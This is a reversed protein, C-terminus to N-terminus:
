LSGGRRRRPGLDGDSTAGRLDRLKANVDALPMAYRTRSAARVEDPDSTPPPPALTSLSFWPQVAGRAMIQAYAEFAALSRFDEATIVDDAAAFSRADEAGLQFVVRSRANALVAARVPPTLQRLHQHALVIGLGLGRAQALAEGLDTPLNLYDQFEDIYLFAAHRMESGVRNRELATQWVQAVIISGFLGAGEPGIRGKALNVLLIKRQSFVQALDFRPSAQGLVARLSPRILIPRVKNLVPATAATREAESWAEFAQWFPQLVLPEDIQGVIRRRFVPDGLLLPLSALSSGKSRTLTILSAHLIDSSRPGWSSAYLQHFVGLLQDAALEASAATVSLPNVGVVAEDDTPDILVVDALRHEPVHALVDAILDGKPEVVIVARGAVMDQCILNLLLTSKGTGTPGVVHLHRLSDGAGIAVPRELGPYSATGLRRGDRLVATPPAVARSTQRVVPLNRTDGLPWACLVALEAANLQTPIRWPRKAALLHRAPTSRWTLRVDPAEASRLAAITQHILQRQRGPHQAHVGVHGVVRWGPLSRKARLSGRGEADLSDSGGLLARSLGASWPEVSNRKGDSPVSRPRAAAILQWQLVLSEGGGLGSLATLLARSVSEAEAVALPRRSNSLRIEVAREVTLSPREALRLLAIAPLFASIQEAIMTSRTEPVALRHVVGGRVGVAEFIIPTVGSASLTRLLQVVNDLRVSRPWHLEFWKLETKSV